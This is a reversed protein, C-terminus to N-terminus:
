FVESINLYYNNTGEGFGWDMRLNLREKSELLFRLGFGFSYDISGLNFDNLEPQVNGIGAFLVGGFRGFLHRRYEVQTALMTRDIYRGEYYGRMMESSGFYALESFPARADTLHGIFQFALVDQRKESLMWYLRLDWRTLEFTQSSGFAEDYFGYTFEFYWGSFANLLNDRSDYVLAIEAGVSESGYTGAVDTNALLGMEDEFSVGSIKNYRIGAGVFLYDIWTKKLLIPEILVQRYSFKEENSEPTEDGLGFYLRPFSQLQVNGELMWKEGPSFIEFGSYVIFQNELTYRASVPMNSTRTDDGSGRMKFLYKAGFGFGLSTEPSYSVVPAVIIKAPYISSDRAVAKQNPRFTFFEVLKTEFDSEEQGKLDINSGLLIASILVVNLIYRPM